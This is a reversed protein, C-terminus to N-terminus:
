PTVEGGGQGSPETVEVATNCDATDSTGSVRVKTGYKGPSTYTYYVGSGKGSYQYSTDYTTGNKTYKFAYDFTPNTYGTTSVTFYAALPATGKPPTVTCSITKPPVYPAFWAEVGKNRNVHTSCTTSYWIYWSSNNPDVQGQEECADAEMSHWFLFQAQEGYFDDPKLEMATGAVPSTSCWATSNPDSKYCDIYRPEAYVRARVGAGAVAVTYTFTTPQAPAAAFEAVVTRNQDMTFYCPNGSNTGCTGYGDLWKSFTSGSGDTVSATLSTNTNTGSANYYQYTNYCTAVKEAEWGAQTKTCNLGYSTSHVNGTGGGAVQVTLTVPNHSYTLIQDTNGFGNEPKINAIGVLTQVITADHNQDWMAAYDFTYGPVNPVSNGDLYYDYTCCLQSEISAYYGYAGHNAVTGTSWVPCKDDKACYNNRDQIGMRVVSGAVLGGLDNGM